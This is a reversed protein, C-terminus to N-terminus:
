EEEGPACRHVHEFAAHLGACLSAKPASVTVSHCTCKHADAGGVSERQKGKGMEKNAHDALLKVCTTAEDRIESEKKKRQKKM